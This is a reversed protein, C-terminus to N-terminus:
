YGPNQSLLGGSVNIENQPIPLILDRTSFTTGIEAAYASMVDMAVGFRILDYLRHNEFSLEIRREDLLMQKTLEGSGDVPLTSLGVRARVKNYTAIADLDKTSEAGAMIAESNMLLVDAYRLVIWDNGCKRADASKTLFKGNARTDDPNVIVSNRETDLPDLAANLNDTLFDLGSVSGGKTMEFSYDQSEELNDDIYPIAFVIEDNGENYFVDYYNDQLSYVSSSTLNGLLTLASSYDHKTLYVKALLAEAAEKTARGFNSQSKSLLTTRATELDSIIFDIVEEPTNNSFYETNVQIIVEDILPVNEYARVLNFHALARVFKAEGEFSAKLEDDTVADLHALVVNARFIANYNAVWYQSVVVNTPEVDLKDFQGWAGESTSSKANDSRMETIAFERSPIAQLGDYMAIVGQEVEETNRYFDNAGIASVPALDLSDKGCSSFMTAVVFLLAFKKYLIKKM